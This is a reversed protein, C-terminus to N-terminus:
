ESLHRGNHESLANNLVERQVCNKFKFSAAMEDLDKENIGIFHDAWEQVYYEALLISSLSGCPTHISTATDIDM